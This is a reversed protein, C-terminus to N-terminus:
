KINNNKRGYYIKLVEKTEFIYKRFEGSSKVTGKRESIIGKLINNNKKKSIKKM